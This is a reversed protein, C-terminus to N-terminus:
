LFQGALERVARRFCSTSPLKRIQDRSEQLSFVTDIDSARALCRYSLGARRLRGLTQRFVEPSSWRIGEFLGPQEERLGLLYYGGDRSPGVVCDRTELIRWARRVEVPRIFPCDTGIIVAKRAGRRFVRRFARRMRIGLDAGSQPILEFAPAYRSLVPITRSGTYFLYRQCSLGSALALTDQVLANYLALVREPPLDRALRTKVRGLRPERAFIILARPDHRPSHKM